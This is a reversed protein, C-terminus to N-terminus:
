NIGRELHEHIFSRAKIFEAGDVSGGRKLTNVFGSRRGMTAAAAISRDAASLAQSGLREEPECLLQEM